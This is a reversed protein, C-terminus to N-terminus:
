PKGMHYSTESNEGKPLPFLIGKCTYGANQKDISPCKPQKWRLAATVLAATFAPTCVNTSNKSKIRQTYVWFRFQQM